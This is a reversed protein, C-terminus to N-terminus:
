SNHFDLRLPTAILVEHDSILKHNHIRLGHFDHGDYVCSQLATALVAAAAAETDKRAAATKANHVGYETSGSGLFCLLAYYQRSILARLM